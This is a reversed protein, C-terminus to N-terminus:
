KKIIKKMIVNSDNYAYRIIYVGPLINETRIKNSYSTKLITKGLVDWLQITEPNIGNALTTRLENNL